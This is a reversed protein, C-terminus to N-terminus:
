STHEVLVGRPFGHRIPSAGRIHLCASCSRGVAWYDRWLTEAQPTPLDVPMRNATRTLSSCPAEHVWGSGAWTPPVPVALRGAWLRPNVVVSFGWVSGRSAARSPQGWPRPDSDDPAERVPPVCPDDRRGLRRGRDRDTNFEPRGALSGKCRDLGCAPPSGQSKPSQSM